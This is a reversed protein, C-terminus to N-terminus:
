KKLGLVDLCTTSQDASPTFFAHVGHFVIPDIAPLAHEDFDLACWDQLIQNHVLPNKDHLFGNQWPTIVEEFKSAILLYEVGPITDGGANLDNIFTSNIFFQFCSACIPDVIKKVPDYLGLPTLLNVIGWLDLGYQISGIGVFKHVKPGGGLYKMYYRPMLSGQSHGLMDVQTTNTAELVKDVYVKLEQASDEMKALGSILLISPIRGYELAFVCYGQAVFRPGMVVWNIFPGVFTGHVLVVARPHLKSPKCNWDNYGGLGRKQFTVASSSALPEITADVDPIPNAYVPMFVLVSALLAMSAAIGFFVSKRLHM